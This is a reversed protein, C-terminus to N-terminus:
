LRRSSSSGGAWFTGKRQNPQRGSTCFFGFMAAPWHASLRLQLLSLPQCVTLLNQWCPKQQVLERTSRGLLPVFLLFVRATSVSGM